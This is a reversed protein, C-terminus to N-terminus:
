PLAVGLCNNVAQVTAGDQGLVTTLYVCIAGSGGSAVWLSWTNELSSFAYSQAPLTPGSVPSMSIPSYGTVQNTGSTVRIGYEDPCTTPSTAVCADTSGDAAGARILPLSQSPYRRAM